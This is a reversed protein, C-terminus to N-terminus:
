RAPRARPEPPPASVADDHGSHAPEGPAGPAPESAARETVTTKATLWSFGAQAADNVASATLVANVVRSERPRLVRLGVLGLASWMGVCRTCTLLEGMAYRLGEGKPRRGHATEEVFPERVWAEVKEKAILKSLAFAAVGLPLAEGARVPDDGRERAAVLVAGLLASWGASLAAYDTASIPKDALESSM